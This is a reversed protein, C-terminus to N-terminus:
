AEPSASALKFMAEGIYARLASRTLSITKGQVLCSAIAPKLQDIAATDQPSWPLSTLLLHAVLPSSRAICDGLAREPRYTVPLASMSGDFEDALSLPPLDKISMKVPINNYRFRYFAPYLADRLINAKVMMYLESGTKDASM